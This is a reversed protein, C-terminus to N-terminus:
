ICVNGGKRKKKLTLGNLIARRLFNFCRLSPCALTTSWELVSVAAAATAAAVVVVFCVVLVVVVLVVVVGGGGCVCLSLFLWFSYSSYLYMVAFVLAMHGCAACVVWWSDDGLQEVLVM